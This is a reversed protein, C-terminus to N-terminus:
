QSERGAAAAQSVDIRSAAANRKIRADKAVGRDIQLL